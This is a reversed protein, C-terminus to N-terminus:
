LQAAFCAGCMRARSAWCAAHVRGMRQCGTAATGAATCRSSTGRGAWSPSALSHDTYVVGMLVSRWRIVAEQYRMSMLQLAMLLACEALVAPAWHGAQHVRLFLVFLCTFGAACSACFSHRVHQCLCTVLARSRRHLPSPMSSCPSGTAARAGPRASKNKKHCVSGNARVEGATFLSWNKHAYRRQVCAMVAAEHAADRFCLLPSVAQALPM